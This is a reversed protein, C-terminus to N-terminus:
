VVLSTMIRGITGKLVVHKFVAGLTQLLGDTKLNEIEADEVVATNIPCGRVECDRIVVRRVTSRDFPHKAISIGCSEFACRKFEIDAYVGGGRDYFCQITQDEFVRM